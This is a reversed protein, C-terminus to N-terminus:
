LVNRYEITGEDKDKREERDQNLEQDRLGSIERWRGNLSEVFELVRKINEKQEATECEIIGYNLQAAITNFENKWATSNYFDSIQEMYHSRANQDLTEYEYPQIHYIKKLLESPSSLAKNEEELENIRNHLEEIIEHLGEKEVEYVGVTEMGGGLRFLINKIRNIM